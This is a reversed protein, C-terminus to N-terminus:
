IDFISILSRLLGQRWCLWDHGGRFEDFTVNHGANKLTKTMLKSVELMDHEYCGAEMVFNLVNPSKDQIKIEQIFDSKDPLSDAKPWWFSGSQSIACAFRHPWNLAGYVACLGGLSQGAVITKYPDDTILFQTSVWPLLEQEIATWFDNNCGLEKYRYSSDISDIFVYLAPPLKGTSTLADLDSFIPMQTAWYQGDFLLAVPLKHTTKPGTKYLWVQRTNALIDSHWLNKKPITQQKGIITKLHSQAKKQLCVASLKINNGNSHPPLPNLSDAQANTSMLKIWWHRIAMVDSSDPPTQEKTAPMLFYSGLWDKALSTAWYWIDTGELRSFRTLQKTPHPTKSYLDIYVTEIDSHTGAPDRWIFTVVCNEEDLDSLLPTGLKKIREWWLESGANQAQMLSNIPQNTHM